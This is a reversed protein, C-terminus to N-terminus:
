DIARKYAAIAGMVDDQQELRHGLLFQDYASAVKTAATDAALPARGRATQASAVVPVVVCVITALARLRMCDFQEMFVTFTAYIGWMATPGSSSSIRAHGLQLVGTVSTLFPAARLHAVQWRTYAMLSSM